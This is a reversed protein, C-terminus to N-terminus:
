EDPPEDPHAQSDGARVRDAVEGLPSRHDGQVGDHHGEAKGARHSDEEAEIGGPLRGTEIRDLREAELSERRTSFFSRRRHLTFCSGRIAHTSKTEESEGFSPLASEM